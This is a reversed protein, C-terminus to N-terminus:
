RLSCREICHSHLYSSQAHATNYEVSIEFLHANYSQARATRKKVTLLRSNYSEDDKNRYDHSMMKVLSMGTDVYAM